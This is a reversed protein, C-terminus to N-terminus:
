ERGPVAEGLLIHRDRGIPKRPVLRGLRLIFGIMPRRRKGGAARQMM